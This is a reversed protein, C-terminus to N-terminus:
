RSRAVVAERIKGLLKLFGQRWEPMGEVLPIGRSYLGAIQTDLPITMLVPIQEQSCYQEVQRDGVGARNLVVGCPISLKRLMEVALALDYRGFPTPEAVLLCFDSGEVAAVVPRSTGPAVDIIVTAEHSVHEKVKRVVPPAMAEGVYLTGQVFDMGDAGGVEVVGIERGAETIAEEPCLYSCAGCGRCLEPAVLVSQKTVILARYACVDACKGCYTCKARDIEPVPISVAESDTIAPKLFIHGNPGEVDCDLLQVRGTGRLSLALSTAVLTKGTGEKGSAVSIIM